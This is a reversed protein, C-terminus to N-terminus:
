LVVSYKTPVAGLYQFFPFYLISKIKTNSKTTSHQYQQEKKECTTITPTHLSNRINDLLEMVRWEVVMGFVCLCIVCWADDDEDQKKM